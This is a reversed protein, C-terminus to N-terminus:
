TSFQHPPNGNSNNPSGNNNNGSNNTNNPRTSANSPTKYHVLLSYVATLDKPYEDRGSAFQNALHDLLTGYCTQDAGRLLAMALTEQQGAEKYEAATHARGTSNNANALASNTVISGGHHEITDLWLTLQRRYDEV